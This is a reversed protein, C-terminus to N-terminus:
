KRGKKSFDHEPEHTPVFRARHNPETIEIPPRNKGGGPDDVSVEDPPKQYKYVNSVQEPYDHFPDHPQKKM